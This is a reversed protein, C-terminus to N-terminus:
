SLPEQYDGPLKTGFREMRGLSYAEFRAAEENGGRSREGGHYRALGCPTGPRAPAPFWAPM